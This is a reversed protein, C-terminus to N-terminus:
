VNLMKEIQADTYIREGTKKDKISRWKERLEDPAIRRIKSVKRPKMVEGPIMFLDSPKKIKETGQMAAVSYFAQVRTMEWMETTRKETGKIYAYFERPTINWFDSFPIAARGSAEFLDDWTVDM